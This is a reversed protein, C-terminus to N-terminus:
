NIIHNISTITGLSYGFLTANWCAMSACAGLRGPTCTEVTVQLRQAVETFQLGTPPQGVTVSPGVQWPMVGCTFLLPFNSLKKKESCHSTPLLNKM